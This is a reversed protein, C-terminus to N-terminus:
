DLLVYYANIPLLIEIKTGSLGENKRNSINVKHSINSLSELLTLRTETLKTGYSKHKNTKLKNLILENVLNKEKIGM